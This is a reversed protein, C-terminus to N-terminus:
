PPRMRSSITTPPSNGCRSSSRRGTRTPLVRLPNYVTTGDPPTVEHDLVGLENREAFRVRVRGMPSDVVLHGDDVTAAGGALGAAWDPRRGSDRAVDYVDSPSREIIVSVHRSRM